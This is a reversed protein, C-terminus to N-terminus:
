QQEEEQQEEQKEKEDKDEDANGDEGFGAEKQERRARAFASGAEEESHFTGLHVGQQTKNCWGQAKWRMESEATDKMRSVGLYKSLGRSNNGTAPRLIPEDM